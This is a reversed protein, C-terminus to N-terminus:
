VDLTAAFLATPVPEGLSAEFATVGVYRGSAIFLRQAELDLCDIVALRDTV